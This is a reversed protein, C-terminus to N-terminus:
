ITEWQFPRFEAIRQYDGPNKTLVILGQSAATM